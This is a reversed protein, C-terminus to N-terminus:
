SYCSTHNFHLGILILQLFSVKSSLTIWAYFRYVTDVEGAQPVISLYFLPLSASSDEEQKTQLCVLICSDGSFDTLTVCGCLLNWQAGPESLTLIELRPQSLTIVCYITSCETLQSCDWVLWYGSLSLSPHLHYYRQPVLHWCPPSLLFSIDTWRCSGFAINEVPDLLSPSATSQLPLCPQYLGRVDNICLSRLRSRGIHGYFFSIIQFQHESKNFEWQFCEYAIATVPLTLQMRAKISSNM